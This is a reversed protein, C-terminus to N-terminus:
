GFLDVSIVLPQAEVRLDQGASAAQLESSEGANEATLITGRFPFRKRLIAAQQRGNELQGRFSEADMERRASKLKNMVAQLRALETILDALMDRGGTSLHVFEMGATSPGRIARVEGVARFSQANVRVIIEARVGCDFPQAIDLCCGHLSLDRIMGPLIVGSSPLCNIKAQGGCSFRPSRRRDEEAAPREAM